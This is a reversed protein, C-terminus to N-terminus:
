WCRWRSRRRIGTAESVRHAMREFRTQEDPEAPAAGSQISGARWPDSRREVTRNAARIGGHQDRCVRAHNSRSRGAPLREARASRGGPCSYSTFRRVGRMTIVADSVVRVSTAHPSSSVVADVVGHVRVGFHAHEGVVRVDDVRRNGGRVRANGGLRQGPSPPATSAPAILRRADRQAARASPTGKQAGTRSCGCSTRQRCRVRRTWLRAGDRRPM